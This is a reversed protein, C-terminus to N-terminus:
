RIKERKERDQRREEEIEGTKKTVKGGIEKFRGKARKDEKRGKIEKLKKGKKASEM